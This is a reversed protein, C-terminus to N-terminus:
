LTFAWGIVSLVVLVLVLAGAVQKGLERAEPETLERDFRQIGEANAWNSRYSKGIRGM